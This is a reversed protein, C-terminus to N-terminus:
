RIKSYMPERNTAESFQEEANSRKGERWLVAALAAHAETYNPYKRVLGQLLKKAEELRGVQSSM